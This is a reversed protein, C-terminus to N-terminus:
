RHLLHRPELLRHLPHLAQRGPHLQRHPPHRHAGRLLHLHDRVLSSHEQSVDPRSPGAGGAQLGQARHAPPPSPQVPPKSDLDVGAVSRSSAGISSRLGAIDVKSGSNSPLEAQSTRFDVTSSTRSGMRSNPGRSLSRKRVEVIIDEYRDAGVSPERNAQKAQGRRTTAPRGPSARVPAVPPPEMEELPPPPAEEPPTVMREQGQSVTRRSMPVPEPEELAMRRRMEEEQLRLMEEEQLRMMEEEERRQREERRM